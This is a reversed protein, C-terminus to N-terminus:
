TPAGAGQLHNAELFVSPFYDLKVVKCYRAGISFLKNLRALIMSKVIEQKNEWDHERIYMLRVGRNEAHNLKNVHYDKSKYKDSHWYDGNVEIGLSLQPVFIDIELGNLIRRNGKEAKVFKSMFCYVEEQVASTFPHCQRCITGTDHSTFNTPYISYIHGNICSVEM